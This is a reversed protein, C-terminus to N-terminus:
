IDNNFNGKDNESQVKIEKSKEYEEWQHAIEHSSSTLNVINLAPEKPMNMDYAYKLAQMKVLLNDRNSRNFKIDIDSSDIDDIPCGPTKKCISLCIEIMEREAKALGKEEQKAIDDAHAWGGGLERADGTDGGSTTKTVALPVGAISYALSVIADYKTQVGELNLENVLYKADAPRSPDNTLLVMAKNEDINDKASKSMKQNYIVLIANVFDVINDISYSSVDNAADLLTEVREITGIRNKNTKWEVFNCMGIYHPLKYKFIPDDLIYGKGSSEYVYAYQHDYIMIEYRVNDPDLSDITTIIGGFLKEKTYNSSYVIFACRYDLNYIEFPSKKFPDYSADKKRPLIFRIGSGGIYVDQAIDVNKSERDQEKMYKNLYSLDDSCITDNLYTYTVDEGYLYGKKFEVISFAHAEDVTANSNSESDSRIKKWINSDKGTYVGELHEYEMVNLYHTYLIRPLYRSITIENLSDRSLPIEITKRGFSYKKKTDNSYKNNENAKKVNEIIQKEIELPTSEKTNAQEEAM